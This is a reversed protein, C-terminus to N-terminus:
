DLLRRLKAAVKPKLLLAAFRGLDVGGYYVEHWESLGKGHPAKLEFLSWRKWKRKHSRERVVVQRRDVFVDLRYQRGNVVLRGRADPKGDFLYPSFAGVDCFAGVNDATAGLVELVELALERPLTVEDNARASIELVKDTEKDVNLLWLFGGEGSLTFCRSDALYDCAIDRNAVCLQNQRGVERLADPTTVEALVCGDGLVASWAQERQQREKRRHGSKHLLGVFKRARAELQEFTEYQASRVLRRATHRVNGDPHKEAHGIAHLLYALLRGIRKGAAQIAGRGDRNETRFAAVAQALAPLLAQVQVPPPLSSMRLATEIKQLRIKNAPSLDLLNIDSM